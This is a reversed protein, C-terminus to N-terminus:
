RMIIGIDKHDAYFIHDGIQGLEYFDASWYPQVYTAHYHTAGMNEYPHDYADIVAQQAAKWARKDRPREPKGDWYFSFQHREKVVECVTDPFGWHDVRNQIVHVVQRQGEPPQNRAEYYVALAACLFSATLM